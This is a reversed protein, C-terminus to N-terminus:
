FKFPKPTEFGPLTVCEVDVFAALAFGGDTKRGSALRTVGRDAIGAVIRGGSRIQAVLTDPIVEVAGDIVLVDYPAGAAHGQAMPGEVLEVTPTAGLADRATGLLSPDSDVAVVTGVIEALVAATYGTAAGILLVRDTATLYAETLLRGTAMPLNAYRGGGLPIPADRYAISRVDDPVFAERPVRAMAAVVRQDSVANTRLQSAVMAHRM